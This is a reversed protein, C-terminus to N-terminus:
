FSAKLDCFQYRTNYMAYIVPPTTVCVFGIQSSFLNQFPFLLVHCSGTNQQVSPKEPSTSTEKSRDENTTAVMDLVALLSGHREDDRADAKFYM